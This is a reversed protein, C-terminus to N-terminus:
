GGWIYWSTGFRQAIGHTREEAQRAQGGNQGGLLPQCSRSDGGGLLASLM